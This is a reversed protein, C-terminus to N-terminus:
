YDETDDSNDSNNLCSVKDYDYDHNHYYNLYDSDSLYDSDDEYYM